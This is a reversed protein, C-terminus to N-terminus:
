MEVLHKMSYLGNGKCAIFLAAKVAGDAFVERSIASHSITLTENNGCFLVDHEGVIGGGRVAHLGMELVDRKKRETHRDYVYNYKQEAKENIADAIMLATGSPSDLKNNHHKEVIEVDYNLGLLENAKQALGILVNVGLSMNASKFIAIDKSANEINLISSESLGTTCIVCPLKRKVCNEILNDVALATSFDILVDAKVDCKDLTKFVPVDCPKEFYDIGAVIKCDQREGIIRKLANGMKGHIGSIIIEVMEDGAKKYNYTYNKYDKDDTMEISVWCYM